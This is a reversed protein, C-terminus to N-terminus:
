KAPAVGKEGQTSASGENGDLDKIIIDFTWDSATSCPVNYTDGRFTGTCTGGEPDCAIVGAQDVVTGGQGWAVRHQDEIEPESFTNRPVDALGQPDDYKVSFSWIDVTGQDDPHEICIAEADSVQPSQGDDVVEEGTDSDIPEEDGKCATLLVLISALALPTSRM